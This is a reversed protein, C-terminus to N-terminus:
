AVLDLTQLLLAADFQEHPAGLRQSQRRRTHFQQAQGLVDQGPDLGGLVFEARQNGPFRAAQVDGDFTMGAKLPQKRHQFFEAM